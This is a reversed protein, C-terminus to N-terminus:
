GGPAAPKSVPVMKGPVINGQEDVHAPVYRLEKEPGGSMEQWALIACIL